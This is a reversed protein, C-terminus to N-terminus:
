STFNIIIIIVRSNVPLTLAVYNAIYRDYQDQILSFVFIGMHLMFCPVTLTPSTKPLCEWTIFM